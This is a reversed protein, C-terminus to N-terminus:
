RSLNVQQFFRWKTRIQSKAFTVTMRLTYIQSKELVILCICITYCSLAYIRTNELIIFYICIIYCSLAYIRTNELVLLKNHWNNNTTKDTFPWLCPTIASYWFPAWTYACLGTSRLTVEQFVHGVRFRAVSVRNM